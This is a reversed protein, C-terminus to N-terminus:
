GRGGHSSMRMELTLTDSGTTGIATGVEYMRHSPHLLESLGTPIVHHWQHPHSEYFTPQLSKMGEQPTPGGLILNM